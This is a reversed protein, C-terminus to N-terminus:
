RVTMGESVVERPAEGLSAIVRERDKPRAKALVRARLEKSLSTLRDETADLMESTVREVDLSADREVAELCAGWLRELVPGMWSPDGGPAVAFYRALDRLRTVPGEDVQDDDLVRMIFREELVEPNKGLAAEVLMWRRSTDSSGELERLAERRSEEPYLPHVLIEAEHRGGPGLLEYLRLLHDGRLEAVSWLDNRAVALLDTHSRDPSIPDAGEKWALGRDLALSLPDHEIFAREGALCLLPRAAEWFEHFPLTGPMSHWASPPSVFNRAIAEDLAEAAFQVLMARTAPTLDEGRSVLVPLLSDPTRVMVSLFARDELVEPPLMQLLNRIFPPRGGGRSALSGIIVGRLLDPNETGVWDRLAEDLTSIGDHERDPEAHNGALVERVPHPVDKM